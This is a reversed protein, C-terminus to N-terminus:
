HKESHDDGHDHGHHADDGMEQHADADLNHSDHDHDHEAPAAAGRNLVIFEMEVRGAKEFILTTPIIDGLKTPESVGMFMIHLGGKEFVVDQGAPIEVRMQQRMTAVGDANMSSLHVETRPFDSEAGILADAEDGMNTVIMYGAASRGMTEYSIAGEIHLPAHDDMASVGTALLLFAATLFKM